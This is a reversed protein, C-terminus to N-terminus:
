KTAEGMSGTNKNSYNKLLLILEKIHKAAFGIFFVSLISIEPLNYIYNFSLIDVAVASEPSFQWGNRNFVAV